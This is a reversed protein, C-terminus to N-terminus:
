TLSDGFLKSLLGVENWNGDSALNTGDVVVGDDAQFCKPLIYFVDLPFIALHWQIYIVTVIMEDYSSKIMYMKASSISFFSKLKVLLCM